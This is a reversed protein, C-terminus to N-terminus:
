AARGGLADSGPPGLDWEKTDHWPRGVPGVGGANTRLPAANTTRSGDARPDPVRAAGADSTPSSGGDYVRHIEVIFRGGTRPILQDIFCGHVKRSTYIQRMISNYADILYNNDIQSPTGLTPDMEWIQEARPFRNFIRFLSDRGEIRVVFVCDMYPRICNPPFSDHQECIGYGFRPEPSSPAGCIVCRM